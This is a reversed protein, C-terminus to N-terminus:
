ATDWTQGDDDSAWIRVATPSGFQGAVRKGCLASLYVAGPRYGTTYPNGALTPDVLDTYTSSFTVPSTTFTAGNSTLETTRSTKTIYNTGTYHMYATITSTVGNRTTAYLASEADLGDENSANASYQVSPSLPVNLPSPRVTKDSTRNQGTSSM